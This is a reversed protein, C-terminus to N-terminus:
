LSLVNLLSVRSQILIRFFTEVRGEFHSIDLEMEQLQEECVVRRKQFTKSILSWKSSSPMAIQKLLLQSSSELMLVATERAEPMMKILRCNEQNAAASKMNIKKFQKRTKKAVRIYSQIKTHVAADDGKKLALQMELISEKLDSFSEQM